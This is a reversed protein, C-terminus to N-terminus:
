RCMATCAAKESHNTTSFAGQWSSTNTPLRKSHKPSPTSTRPGRRSELRRYPFPCYTGVYTLAALPFPKYAIGPYHVNRTHNARRNVSEWTNRRVKFAERANRTWDITANPSWGLTMVRVLPSIDYQPDRWRLIIAM